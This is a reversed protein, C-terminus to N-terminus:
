TKKGTQRRGPAPVVARARSGAKKPPSARDAAAAAKATGKVPGSEKAKAGRPAPLKRGHRAALAQVADGHVSAAAALLEDIAAQLAADAEAFLPTSLEEFREFAAADHLLPLRCARVAALRLALHSANALRRLDRWLKKNRAVLPGLVDGALRAALVDAGADRLLQELFGLDAPELLEARSALLEIGVARLEHIRSDWLKRVFATMQARGMQPHAAALDAAAARVADGDAGLFTTDGGVEQQLRAAAAPSGAAQLRQRLLSQERAFNM